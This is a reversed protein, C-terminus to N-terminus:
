REEETALATLLRVNSLPWPEQRCCRNDHEHLVAVDTIGGSNVLRRLREITGQRYGPSEIVRLHDIVLPETGPNALRM